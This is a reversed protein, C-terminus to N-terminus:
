MRHTMALSLLCGRVESLVMDKVVVPWRRPGPWRGRALDSCSVLYKFTNGGVQVVFSFRSSYPLSAGLLNGLEQSKKSRAEQQLFLLSRTPNCM